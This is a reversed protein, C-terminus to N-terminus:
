LLSVGLGFPIPAIMSRPRAAQIICHCLSVQKRDDCVINEMFTNLLTPIWKRALDVNDFQSTLPYRDMNQELDMIQAKVLKAAAVVIRTSEDDIQGRKDSYWKDNFQHYM